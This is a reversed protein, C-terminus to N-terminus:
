NPLNNAVITKETSKYRQYNDNMNQSIYTGVVQLVNTRKITKGHLTLPPQGKEEEDQEIPKDFDRLTNNYRTTRNLKYEPFLAIQGNRM